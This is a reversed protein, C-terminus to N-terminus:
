PGWPSSRNALPRDAALCQCLEGACIFAPCVPLYADHGDFAFRCSVRSALAIRPRPTANTFMICALAIDKNPFIRNEGHRLCKLLRCSGETIAQHRGKGRPLGCTTVTAALLRSCQKNHAFAPAVTAEIITEDIQTHIIVRLRNIFEMSDQLQVLEVEESGIRLVNQRNVM